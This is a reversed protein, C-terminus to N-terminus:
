VLGRILAEPHAWLIKLGGVNKGSYEFAKSYSQQFKTAKLWDM